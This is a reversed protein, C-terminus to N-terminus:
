QLWEPDCICSEKGRLFLNCCPCLESRRSTSRAWMILAYREGSTVPSVEHLHQGLHIVARGPSPSIRAEEKGEGRSGRRGRLILDGGTFSRGLCINLTLESDDTHAILAHRTLLSPVSSATTRASPGAGDRAGAGSDAGADKADEAAAGKAAREKDTYGIVYGYRFDLASGPTAATSASAGAGAGAGSGSGSGALAPFLIAAIPQLVRTLLVDQLIDLGSARLPVHRRSFGTDRWAQPQEAEWHAFKATQEM